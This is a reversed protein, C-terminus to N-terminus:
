ELGRRMRAELMEMFSPPLSGAAERTKRAFTRQPDISSQRLGVAAAPVARMLMRLDDDESRAAPNSGLGLMARLGVDMQPSIFRGGAIPLYRALYYAAQAGPNPGLIQSGTADQDNWAQMFQGPMGWGARKQQDASLGLTSRGTALDNGTVFGYAGSMAPGASSWMGREDGGTAQMMLNVVESWPTEPRIAMQEGHVTYTPALSMFDQKEKMRMSRHGEIAQDTREVARALDAVRAFRRPNKLATRFAGQMAGTYYKVFPIVPALGEELGSKASYDILLQKMERAAAQPTLGRNIKSLMTWMRMGDEADYIDALQRGKSAFISRFAKDAAAASAEGPAMAVRNAANIARDVGAWEAWKGAGAGQTAEEVLRRSGGRGIGGQSLMLEHLEGLDWTRGVKDTWTAGSRGVKSQSIRAVTDRLDPSLAEGGEDVLLRGLESIRNRFEFGMNGRTILAKMQGLGLARDMSQAWEMARRSARESTPAALETIANATRRPMVIGHLDQYQEPLRHIMDKKLFSRPLKEAGGAANVVVMDNAALWDDIRGEFGTDGVRPAGQATAGTARNMRGLLGEVEDIHRYAQPNAKRLEPLMDVIEKAAAQNGISEHGLTKQASRIIGTLIDGEEISKVARDIEANSLKADQMRKRVIDAVAEVPRMRAPKMSDVMLPNLVRGGPSALMDARSVAEAMWPQEGTEEALRKAASENMMAARTPDQGFYLHYPNYEVGEKILGQNKATQFLAQHPKQIADILDKTVDTAANRTEPSHWARKAAQLFHDKAADSTVGRRAFVNEAVERLTQDVQRRMVEGANDRASKAAVVAAREAGELGLASPMDSVVRAAPYAADVVKGLGRAALPKLVPAAHKAIAGAGIGVETPVFNAVVDGIVQGQARGALAGVEKELGPYREGRAIENLYERGSAVDRALGAYKESEALNEAELKRMWEANPDVLNGEAGLKGGLQNIQERVWESGQALKNAAGAELSDIGSAARMAGETFAGAPNTDLIAQMPKAKGYKEGIDGFYERFGYGTDLGFSDEKSGLPAEGLESGKSPDWVERLASVIGQHLASDKGTLRSVANVGSIGAQSADPDLVALPNGAEDVVEAQMGFGYGPMSMKAGPTQAILRRAERMDEMRPLTPQREGPVAMDPTPTEALASAVKGAVAGSAPGGGAQEAMNAFARDLMQEYSTVGQEFRFNKATERREAAPTETRQPAASNRIISGSLSDDDVDAWEPVITRLNALAKSRRQPDQLRAIAAANIEEVSNEGYLDPRKAKLFEGVSRPM